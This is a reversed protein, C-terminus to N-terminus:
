RSSEAGCSQGENDKVSSVVSYSIPELTRTVLPCQIASSGWVGRGLFQYTCDYLRIDWSYFFMSDPRIMSTGFWIPCKIQDELLYLSSSLAVLLGVQLFVFFMSTRDGLIRNRSRHSGSGLEKTGTVWLMLSSETKSIGMPNQSISWLELELWNLVSPKVQDGFDGSYYLM